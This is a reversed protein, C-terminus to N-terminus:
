IIWVWYNSENIVYYSNPFLDMETFSNWEKVFNLQNKNVDSVDEAFLTSIAILILILSQLKIQLSTILYDCM